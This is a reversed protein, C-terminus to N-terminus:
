VYRMVAHDSAVSHKGIQRRETSMHLDVIVHDQRTKGAHMLKALDASMRKNGIVGGHRAIYRGIDHRYTM